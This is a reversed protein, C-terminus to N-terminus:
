RRRLPAGQRNLALTPVDSAEASTAVIERRLWECFSRILKKRPNDPRWVLYYAYPEEVHTSSLRLLRGRRLDDAVILNRVLGIGQGALVAPVLLSPDGFLPGSPEPSLRAGAAQLWPEWPPFPSRLFWRRAVGALGGRMSPLFDPACVPFSIEGALRETVLGRWGGPGFRVACDIGGGALDDILHSGVLDVCVRDDQGSFRPLRAILWGTAFHPLVSVTLRGRASRRPSPPFTRDLLSVAQRVQAVLALCAPTARMGQGERVFLRMGLRNQLTRIQQSVAGHTLSLSQAARTFSGHKVAADLVLLSQLSPIRHSM